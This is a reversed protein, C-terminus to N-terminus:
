EEVLARRVMELIMEEKTAHDEIFQLVVGIRQQIRSENGLLEKRDSVELTMGTVITRAGDIEREIEKHELYLARMLLDGLLTPLAKEEFSFHKKIGEDLRSLVQQLRSHRESLAEIRGPTWDARVKELATLAEQDSLTAGVLGTHERITKHQDIVAKIIILKDEM